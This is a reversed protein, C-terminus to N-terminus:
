SAGVCEVIAPEDRMWDVKRSKFDTIALTVAGYGFFEARLIRPGSVEWGAILGEAATPIEIPNGFLDTGRFM